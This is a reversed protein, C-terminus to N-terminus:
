LYVYDGQVLLSNIGPELWIMMINNGEHESNDHVIHLKKFELPTSDDPPSTIRPDGDLRLMTESNYSPQRYTLTSDECIGNKNINTIRIDTVKGRAGTVNVWENGSKKQMFVNFSFEELTTSGKTVTLRGRDQDGDIVFRVQENNGFTFTQGAITAYDGGKTEVQFYTGGVLHGNKSPDDSPEEKELRMVVGGEPEPPVHKNKFDQNTAGPLVNEIMGSVPIYPTWAAPDMTEELTYVAPYGSVDFEYYGTENTWTEMSQGVQMDPIDGDTMTLTIQIVNVPGILDGNTYYGWKYGSIKKTPVIMENRFDQDTAGPVVDDIVGSTPAYPRWANRDVEETLRYLPLPQPVEFDWWGPVEFEYYGNEDTTTTMGQSPFGPVDGSTLTLNIVIGELPGVMAGKWTVNYKHGSIKMPPPPLRYNSFNCKASTQHHNLYISDYAGSPPSVPDWVTLNVEEALSYRGEHEPVSFSYYGDGNTTTTMGEEPFSFDGQTKILRMTVGALPGIHQNDVTVNRKYGSIIWPGTPQEPNEPNSGPNLEDGFDVKRLVTEGGSGDLFTVIVTGDFDTVDPIELPENVSWNRYHDPSVPSGDLLIRYTGNLLTDGGTHRLTLLHDESDVAVGFSLHPVENPTSQGFVFSAVVAGGIVVLSVLLVAGIVESVGLEWRSNPNM